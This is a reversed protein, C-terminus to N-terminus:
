KTRFSLFGSISFTSTSIRDDYDYGYGYSHNSYSGVITSLKIGAGMYDAIQYECAVNASLAFVTKSYSIPIRRYEGDASYFLPGVGAGAYFGWKKYLFRGNFTAGAYFMKDTESAEVYKSDSNSFRAFNGHIGIGLFRHFFYQAEVDVNFGHRLDSNYSNWGHDGWNYDDGLWYAYGGGVQFRFNKYDRELNSSQASIYQAGLLGLILSCLLFFKRM